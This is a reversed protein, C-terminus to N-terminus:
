RVYRCAAPDPFSCPKKWARTIKPGGAGWEVRFKRVGEQCEAGDISWRQNIEVDVVEAAEDLEATAPALQVVSIRRGQRMRKTFFRSFASGSLINPATGCCRSSGECVGEFGEDVFCSAFHDSDGLNQADVWCREVFAIAEQKLDRKKKVM